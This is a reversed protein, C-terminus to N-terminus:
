PKWDSQEYENWVRQYVARTDTAIVDWNFVSEVRALANAAMWRAHGPDRLVRSIGWALSAADGRYTSTGTVNHQTVEALGGADSTVVPCKAAMAELAVIGFPEYLSPFVAVDAVQYLRDRDEDTVRGTFYVHSWVGLQGALAELHARNGGGAIVLKTQAGQARLLAQAQVLVHAGKEHVMRGIFYVIKEQDEAFRRRFALPDFEADAERNEPKVDVGNYLVDMKDWPTSLAFEVEGRMFDSCVIVRWSEDCLQEECRHIYRQAETRIGGNRGFETAHITSLMPLRHRHKLAIGAFQGLWDHAHILIPTKVKKRAEKKKWEKILSDACEDLQDNLLHVWHVFDDSPQTVRVRHIYLNPAPNEEPAGGADGCTVVHTEVGARALAPALGELAAAIGGVRM